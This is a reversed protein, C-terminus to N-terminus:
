VTRRGGERRPGTEKTANTETGRCKEIGRVEKRVVGDEGGIVRM